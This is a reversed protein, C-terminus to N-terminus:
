LDILQYTILKRQPHQHFRIETVTHHFVQLHVSDISASVKFNLSNGISHIIFIDSLQLSLPISYIIDNTVEDIM